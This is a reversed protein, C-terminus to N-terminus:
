GHPKRRRSNRYQRPTMGVEALFQRNFNSLNSFGVEYCISSVPRETQDLLRRANALRLKRVMDTFNQGTARQFWRSFTPGKM